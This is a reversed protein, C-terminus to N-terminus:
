FTEYSTGNWLIELSEYPDTFTYTSAGDILVAGGVTTVVVAFTPSTGTRDKIVFRDYLVTPANPLRVTVIGATSNCSIYDDTSLVVYTTPGVVNVYSPAANTITFTVTSGAASTAIGQTGNGPTFLNINNAAPVAISGNDTTFQTPVTPPLTGASAVIHFESM